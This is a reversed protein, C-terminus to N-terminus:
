VYTKGGKGAAEEEAKQQLDKWEDNPEIVSIPVRQKEEAIEINPNQKLIEAALSKFFWNKVKKM